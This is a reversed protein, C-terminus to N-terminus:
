RPSSYFAVPLNLCFEYHFIFNLVFSHLSNVDSFNRPTNTLCLKDGSFVFILDVSVFMPTAIGEQSSSIFFIFLSQDMERQFLGLGLICFIAVLIMELKVCKIVFSLRFTTGAM